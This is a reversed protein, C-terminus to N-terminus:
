FLESTTTWKAAIENILQKYYYAEKDPNYAVLLENIMSLYDTYAPSDNMSKLLNNMATITNLYILYQENYEKDNIMPSNM